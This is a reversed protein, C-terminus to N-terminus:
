TAKEEQEPTILGQAIKKIVEVRDHIRKIAKERYDKTVGEGLYKSIFNDYEKELGNKLEFIATIKNLEFDKLSPYYVYTTIRVPNTKSRDENEYKMYGIHYGYELVEGNNRIYNHITKLYPYDALAMWDSLYQNDHKHAYKIGFTMTLFQHYWGMGVPSHRYEIGKTKYQTKVSDVYEAGLQELAEAYERASGVHQLRFPHNICIDHLETLKKLDRMKNFEM